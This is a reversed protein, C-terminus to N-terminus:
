NPPKDMKAANSEGTTERRAAAADHIKKLNELEETTYHSLDEKKQEIGVNGKHIHIESKSWETVLNLFLEADGRNKMARVGLNTIVQPLFVKAHDCCAQFDIQRFHKLVTNRSFGSERAVESVSPRKARKQDAAEALIKMYANFILAHNEQWDKRRRGM